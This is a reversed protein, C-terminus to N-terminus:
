NRSLRVSAPKLEPEAATLNKEQKVPEFSETKKTYLQELKKSEKEAFSFAVLVLIFLVVVINREVVTRKM